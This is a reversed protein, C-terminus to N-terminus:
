LPSRYRAGEAFFPDRTAVLSIGRQRWAAFAVCSGGIAALAALDLWGVSEAHTPAVIWHSYAYHMVVLWAGAIAMARPRFKLRKPMLVFFPVAFYGGILLWKMVTWFGHDRLAYFTLEEPKNAIRILLAQFFGTYAWFVIFAFLMRGLAYFHNPTIVGEDYGHRGVFYTLLTVLAIAAVFGSAFVSVPFMSSYWVGQLSMMWDIVAFTFALGVPPLMASAFRREAALAAEPDVEGVLPERDRRVSWSRLRWAVFVLFALFVAGRIAFFPTNLYSARHAYVALEHANGTRNAWPYLSSVGFILPVGLLAVIPLPAVAAEITRRIVAMWRANTAYAILQLILASVVTTFAFAYATLYAVWLREPAVVFGIALAIFGVLATAAGIVVLRRGDFTVAAM